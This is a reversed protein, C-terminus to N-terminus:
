NKLNSKCQVFYPEFRYCEGENGSYSYTKTKLEEISPSKIIICNKNNCQQIFLLAIGLGWIFSIVKGGTESKIWDSIAM